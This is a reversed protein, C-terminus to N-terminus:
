SHHEDRFADRTDSGWSVAAVDLVLAAIVVIAVIILIM